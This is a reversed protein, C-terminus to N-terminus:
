GSSGPPEGHDLGYKEVDVSREEGM